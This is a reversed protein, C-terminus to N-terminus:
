EVTKVVEAGDYSYVLQFKDPYRERLSQTPAAGYPWPKGEPGSTEFPRSGIVYDIHEREILELVDGGDPSYLRNTYGRGYLPFDEPRGLCLLRKHSIHHRVYSCIQAWGATVGGYGYEPDDKRQERLGDMWHCTAVAAAFALIGIAAMHSRTLHRNAATLNPLKTLSPIIAALVAVLGLEWWFHTWIAVNGLAALMVLPLGWRLYRSDMSLLFGLSVHLCAAFSFLYRPQVEWLNVGREQISFPQHMYMLLLLLPLVVLWLPTDREKMWRDRRYGLVLLVLPAAVLVPLAVGFGEVFRSWYSFLRVFDFRLTVPAFFRDDLPGAFLTKGFITVRKPYLPNSFYIVNRIYWPAATASALVFMVMVAWVTQPRRWTTVEKRRLIFAGLFTAGLAGAYIPGSLKASCLLGGALGALVAYRISSTELWRVMFFFVLLFTLALFLDNKQSNAWFSIEPSTSFLAAVGLSASRAVKFQRCIAYIVCFIGPLEVVFFLALNDSTMPFSLWALIAERAGPYAQAILAMSAAPAISHKQIFEAVLPLHYWLTDSDRATYRVADLTMVGFALLSLSLLFRESFSLDLARDWPDDFAAAQYNRTVALLAIQLAGTVMLLSTFSLRSALGLYPVIVAPFCMFITLAVLATETRGIPTMRRAVKVSTYSLCLLQAVFLGAGIWGGPTGEARPDTWLMLLPVLLHTAAIFAVPLRWFLPSPAPIPHELTSM